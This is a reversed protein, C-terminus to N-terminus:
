IGMSSLLHMVQNLASTVKPHSVELEFLNDQVRSMGEKLSDDETEDIRSLISDLTSQVDLLSAETKDSIAEEVEKRLDELSEKLAKRPM